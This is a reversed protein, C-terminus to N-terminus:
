AALRKEPTRIASGGISFGTLAGSKVAEWMTDDLVRVRLLWTGRKVQQGGIEMDVPALFSELPLIMPEITVHMLGFNQYREMFKWATQRVEDESYVDNQADVVEPELVIGLVTREESEAEEDTEAKKTVQSTRALVKIAVEPPADAKTAPMHRSVEGTGLTIVTRGFEGGPAGWVEITKVKFKGTPRPGEYKKDSPVRALTVHAKFPSRVTPEIEAAKVSAVLSRHVEDLSKEGIARPVVHAITLGDDNTFEGYDGVDLEFPSLKRAIKRAAAVMKAYGEADLEGAQLLTVHKPSPDHENAPFQSAIKPPLRLFVGVKERVQPAALEGKTRWAAHSRVAVTAAMFRKRTDTDTICAGVAQLDQAVEELSGVTDISPAAPDTLVAGGLSKLTRGLGELEGGLAPLTRSLRLFADQAEDDLKLQLAEAM